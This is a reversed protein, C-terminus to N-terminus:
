LLDDDQAGESQREIMDHLELARKGLVVLQRALRTQALSGTEQEELALRVRAIETYIADLHWPLAQRLTAPRACPGEGSGKKRAVAPM